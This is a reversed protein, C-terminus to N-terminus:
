MYNCYPRVGCIRCKPNNKLCIGNTLGFKDGKGQQGYKVLVIDIYRIPHETATSIQRGVQVARDFDNEDSIMGLRHLIRCIVRDPKLVNLGLDMMFHYVTRKGLYEFKRELDYRFHALNLDDDLSRFSEVYNVFSGYRKVLRSFMVANRKIAKIKSRNRIIGPDQLITDIDYDSYDKVKRYDSFYGEIRPLKASVTAARFGSYFVVKVMNWFLEDDTMKRYDLNKYYELTSSLDERSLHSQSFLTEELSSFIRVLDVNSRIEANGVDDSKTVVENERDNVDHGSSEGSLWEDLALCYMGMRTGNCNYYYGWCCPYARAFEQKGKMFRLTKEGEHSGRSTVSNIVRFTSGTSTELRVSESSKVADWADLFSHSLYIKGEHPEFTSM